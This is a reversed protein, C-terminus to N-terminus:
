QDDSLATKPLEDIKPVPTTQYSYSPLMARYTERDRELSALIMAMIDKSVCDALMTQAKEQTQVIQAAAESRAKSFTNFQKNMIWLLILNMACLALSLPQGAMVQIFSEVLSTM